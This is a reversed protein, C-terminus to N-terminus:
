RLFEHADREAHFGAKSAAVAIEKEFIWAFTLDETTEDLLGGEGSCHRYIVHQRTSQRQPDVLRDGWTLELRTGNDFNVTIDAGKQPSTVPKQMQLRDVPITHIMLM